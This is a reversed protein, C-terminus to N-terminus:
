VLRHEALREQLQALEVGRGFFRTMQLPLNHKREPQARTPMAAPPSDLLGLAGARVIAQRRDNVGLKGYVHQLHTKVSSLAVTLKDAIEPRTLGQALLALIERERRTLPEVPAETSNPEIQSM